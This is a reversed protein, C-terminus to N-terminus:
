DMGGLPHGRHAALYPVVAEFGTLSSMGVADAAAVIPQPACLTNLKWNGHLRLLSFTRDSINTLAGAVALARQPNATGILPRGSRSEGLMVDCRPSWRDIIALEITRRGRDIRLVPTGDDVDIHDAGITSPQPGRCIGFGAGLVLLARAAPGLRPGMHTTQDWFWDVQDDSYPVVGSRKGTSRKGWTQEPNLAGIITDMTARVAEATPGSLQEEALYAQVASIKLLAGPELGHGGGWLLLWAANRMIQTARSISTPQAARVWELCTARLPSWEDADMDGPSWAACAADIADTDAPRTTAAHEATLDSPFTSADQRRTQRKPGRPTSTTAGPQEVQRPAANNHRGTRALTRGNVTRRLFSREANISGKPRTALVDALYEEIREDTLASNSVSVEPTRDVHWIYFKACRLLAQRSTKADGPAADIVLKQIVTYIAAGRPHNDLDQTRYSRIVDVLDAHMYVVTDVSCVTDISGLCQHQWHTLTAPLM